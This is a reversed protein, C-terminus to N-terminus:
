LINTYVNFVVCDIMYTHKYIVTLFILLIGGTLKMLVHLLTYVPLQNCTFTESRYCLDSIICKQKQPRNVTSCISISQISKSIMRVFIEICSKKWLIAGHQSPLMTSYAWRTKHGLTTLPSQVM